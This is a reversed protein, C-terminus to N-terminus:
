LHEVPILRALLSLLYKSKPFHLFGTNQSTALHRLIIQAKVLSESKGGAKKYAAKKYRGQLVIVLSQTSFRVASAARDSGNLSM